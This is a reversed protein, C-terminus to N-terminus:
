EEKNNNDIIGFLEAIMKQDDKLKKAAEGTLIIPSGIEVGDYSKDEVSKIPIIKDIKKIAKKDVISTEDM